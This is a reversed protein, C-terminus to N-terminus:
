HLALKIQSKMEDSLIYHFEDPIQGPLIAKDKPHNIGGKIGLSLTKTGEPAFRLRDSGRSHGIWLDAMPPTTYPEGDDFSVTYGLEEFFTRLDKYFNEASVNGEIFKSNGKIIVATKM